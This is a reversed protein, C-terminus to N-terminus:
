EGGEGRYACVQLVTEQLVASCAGSVDCQPESEGSQPASAAARLACERAVLHQMVREGVGTVSCAVAPRCLAACCLLACHPSALSGTREQRGGGATSPVTAVGLSNCLPQLFTPAWSQAHVTLAKGAPRRQHQLSGLAACGHLEGPGEGVVVVYSSSWRWCATSEM